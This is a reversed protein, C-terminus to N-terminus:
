RGHVVQALRKAALVVRPGPIVFEDGTLVHIRGNRVAPVSELVSWDGAVSAVDRDVARGYRLEVIVDPRRALITETSAQVSERDVDGFVNDGGAIDLLDALFGYGGSAYVNRLTGPERGFVLLTRPRPRAQVSARVAALDREMTSAVGDAAEAAGIRVGLARITDMVDSLARHRYSFYPIGARELRQRLETQTDYVVVLDPELTIIRETDPDLLGGVRRIREVEPPFRDYTGVGVLRDGAGMAFLMETTAPILSVIRRPEAARDTEGGVAAPDPSGAERCAPLLAACALAAATLRTAHRGLHAPRAAV